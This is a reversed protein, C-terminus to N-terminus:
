AQSLSCAEYAFMVGVLLLLVGACAIPLTIPSRAETGPCKEDEQRELPYGDMSYYGFQQPDLGQLHSSSELSSSLTIAANRPSHYQAPYDHSKRAAKQAEVDDLCVRDVPFFTDHWQVVRRISPPTPIAVQEKRPRSVEVFM